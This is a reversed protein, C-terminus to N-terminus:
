YKISLGVLLTRPSPYFGLDIGSVWDQYGGYGVEPDMGKYGTITLLNQAQFYLRVQQLPMKRLLHKFDYGVTLNQMKVYDGDEMMIDSSFQWNSHTGSTLRPLHNSTGVGHWREFIASTYNQRTYDVYSRYSRMIQAGFAGTFNMSLDFGKWSANLALGMTVDPHPDGIMGQDDDSIEGDGNRDQWIVDGPRTGALKAGHYNDIEEQTQFIGLAHYGYFYGIPYGVEARYIETTQNSLINEDGHIIGEANAIRTVKNKNYSMNWNVGYKFDGIKDNWSLAIEVGKNQVDGGNIFPAGTGYSDLIPAVVLWDKTTKVYYDFTLGLKGNLFRADIGLDTQESTEWTVDENALIDPYAGTSIVSKDPGFTYDAGSFSITSLYQFGAINQNGNQGWSARVKLYDLWSSLPKMFQEETLIWGASVSPFYGWRHGRAFISSGDARLVATAMYKNDYDYNVRGFFSALSNKGWPGGYITTRNSIVPTNSLYAHEFDGFISNVNSGGIDMGIGNKEISQGLLIDISHKAPKLIYNLTNEWLYSGGHSMSQSVVDNDNFTNSALKYVPVYYRSSYSGFQYGFSTKFKLDKIPQLIAYVNAQLSHSQGLNNGNQYYMQGIPNAERNEWPIAYHFNGEEDYNPLFPSAHLMNRVDNSWMDGIAIGNNESYTYNISEGIKLLEYGKAPILVQDANLRATYRQYKPQVPKGIIGEQYTYSFGLAYVSRENGGAINIAHNTIPANKVRAEELWNTGSWTGNQIKDWDPVMSAFDYGPLGDMMRAENMIMAFEKANLVDPMRYINQWGVYGDYTISTKGARGHKTTVLVVGNAARSGYIAASAADKLVDISEIDAPNLANIDGDTIGDIIYLPTAAGTTGLGRVVVKFGSGPMGSAQTINVGPTQSQLAALPSVTNLKQIDDGKVQVTAGTVLKKKQVGYGVVVVENLTRSSEQLRITLPNKSTVEVVQTDFGVYSFKLQCPLAAVSLSFQGNADTVQGNQSNQEMVSVGILPENDSDSIVTGTLTTQAKAHFALLLMMGLLVKPRGSCLTSPKFLNLLHNM